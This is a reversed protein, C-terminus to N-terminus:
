TRSDTWRLKIKTEKNNTTETMRETEKRIKKTPKMKEDKIRRSQYSMEYKHHQWERWYLKEEDDEADWKMQKIEGSKVDCRETMMKMLENWGSSRIVRIMADERMMKKMENWGSSRIVRITADKRWWRRWRMEDVQDSWDRWWMKREDGEYTWKMWKIQDTGDGCREKM